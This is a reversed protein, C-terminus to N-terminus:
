VNKFKWLTARKLQNFKMLGPNASNKKTLDKQICGMSIMTKAFYNVQDRRM